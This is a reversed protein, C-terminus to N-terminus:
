LSLGGTVPRFRLARRNELETLVQTLEKEQGPSIHLADVITRQTPPLQPHNVIALTAIVKVARAGLLSDGCVALATEAANVIYRYDPHNRIQEKYYDFLRDLTYLNLRGDPRLTIHNEIFSQLSEESPRGFFTFLTRERQRVVNNAVWPLCFTTYPHLPYCRQILSAEIWSRNQMPYLGIDQILDALINLDSHGSVQKWTEEEKHQVLISGIIEEMEHEGGAIALLHDGSLFRGYIKSWEEQSRKGKAYDQLTQHAIVVLHCQNEGSRKCYEAFSQLQQGEFANPDEAMHSLYRSFEDYFIFIGQWQGTSRLHKITEEYIRTPDATLQPVFPAGHAVEKHIDKFLSYGTEKYGRLEDALMEITKGHRLCSEGFERWADKDNEKWNDICEVAARFVTPPEFDIKERKLAQVLSILLSHNFGEPDWHPDPLVV